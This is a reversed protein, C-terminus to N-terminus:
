TLLKTPFQITIKATNLDNEINLRAFIALPKRIDLRCDMCILHRSQLDKAALAPLQIALSIYGGSFDYVDLGLGFPARSPDGTQDIQRSTIQARAASHFLKTGHNLAVGNAGGPAAPHHSPTQWIEPRVARIRAASATSVWAKPRVAAGM